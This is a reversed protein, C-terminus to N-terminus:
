KKVFPLLFVVWLLFINAANKGIVEKGEAVDKRGDRTIM